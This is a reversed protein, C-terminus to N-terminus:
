GSGEALARALHAAAARPDSSQPEVSTPTMALGFDDVRTGGSVRLRRGILQRRLRAEVGVEASGGRAMELAQSLNLGALRETQERSLNVTAVGTGDDLVLRATLDAAGEVAGHDRCTGDRLIRACSPCRRVLGSPPALAVVTGEVTLLSGSTRAEAVGLTVVVRAPETVTPVAESPIGEVHSREDLTVEPIGRYLRVYGGVVRITDGPKLRFDVWSTFPVTGSGDGLRGTHLSRRQEGVTVTRASVEVVRVELRFGDERAALDSVRKLPLSAPDVRPLELESAPEIKTSWGFSLEARDRFERVQANVARLVTGRDVGEAPPDWWTFRVTATGDSLLGSLVNRKRGDARSTVERRAVTVIRALIHVPPLGARLDKLRIEPLIGEDSPPDM